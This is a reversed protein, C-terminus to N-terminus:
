CDFPPLGVDIVAESAPPIILALTGAYEMVVNTNDPLLPDDPELVPLPEGVLVGVVGGVLM